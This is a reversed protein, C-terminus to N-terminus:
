KKSGVILIGIAIAVPAVAKTGSWLKGFFGHHGAAKKWSEKEKKLETNDSTLLINTQETKLLIENCANLEVTCVRGDELQQAITVMAPGQVEYAGTPLPKFSNIPLGTLDPMTAVAQEPTKIAAKQKMIAAVKADRETKIDVIQDNLLKITEDNNKIIAESVKEQQAAELLADHLKLWQYFGAFCVLLAALACAAWITHIHWTSTNM